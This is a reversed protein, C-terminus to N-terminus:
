ADGAKAIRLFHRARQAANENRGRRQLALTEASPKRAKVIKLATALPIKGRQAPKDLIHRQM